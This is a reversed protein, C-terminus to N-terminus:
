KPREYLIRGDRDVPRALTGAFHRDKEFQEPTMVIVDVPLERDALALDIRNAMERRSGSVNMLVLLDVDSDFNAEGRAHSGFLIIRDPQFKEAIRRAMEGIQKGTELDNMSKTDSM